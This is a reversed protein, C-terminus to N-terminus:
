SRAQLADYALGVLENIGAFTEFKGHEFESLDLPKSGLHQTMETYLDMGLLSDFVFEGANNTPAAALEADSMAEVHLFVRRIIELREDPALTVADALTAPVGNRRRTASLPAPTSATM